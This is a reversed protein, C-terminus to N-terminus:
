WALAPNPVHAAYAVEIEKAIKATLAMTALIDKLGLTVPFTEMRGTPQIGSETPETEIWVLAISPSIVKHKLYIIMAYFALQLHKQAKEQTWSTKGTKYELFAKTASDLSDPRGMVTVYPGSTSTRMDARIEVDATDYKPLLLMASDTLLDGTEIGKELAEAVVKGYQMGANSTRLEDRGDFYIEAYRKKDNQWLQIQSFSLYGRPLQIYQKKM